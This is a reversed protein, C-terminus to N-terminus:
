RTDASSGCMCMPGKHVYGENDEFHGVALAFDQSFQWINLSEFVFLYGM